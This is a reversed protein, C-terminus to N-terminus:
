KDGNTTSTQAQSAQLTKQQEQWALRRQRLDWLGYGITYAGAGSIGVLGLVVTKHGVDLLISWIPKGRVM